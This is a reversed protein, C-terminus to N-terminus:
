YDNEIQYYTISFHDPTLYECKYKNHKIFVVRGDKEDFSTRKCYVIM